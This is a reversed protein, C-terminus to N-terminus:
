FYEKPVPLLNFYNIEFSIMDKIGVKKKGGGKGGWEGMVEFCGGEWGSGELGLFRRPM